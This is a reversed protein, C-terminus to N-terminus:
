IKPIDQTKFEKGMTMGSKMTMQSPPRPPIERNRPLFIKNRISEALAKDISEDEGSGM